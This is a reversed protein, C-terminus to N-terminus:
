LFEQVRLIPETNLFQEDSNYLSHERFNFKLQAIRHCPKITNQANKNM